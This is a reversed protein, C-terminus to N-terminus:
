CQPTGRHGLRRVVTLWTMSWGSRKPIRSVELNDWKSYNLPMKVLRSSVTSWSIFRTSHRTVHYSIPKGALSSAGRGIDRATMRARYNTICTVTGHGHREASRFQQRSIVSYYIARGIIIPRHEILRPILELHLLCPTSQIIQLFLKHIAPPNLSILLHFSSIMIINCSEIRRQGHSLHSRSSSKRTMAFNIVSNARLALQVFEDEDSPTTLADWLRSFPQKTLATSESGDRATRTM